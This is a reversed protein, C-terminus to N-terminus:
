KRRRILKKEELECLLVAVDELAAEKEVDFESELETALEGYSKGDGQLAMWIFSGTSNLEHTVPPNSDAQLIIVRGNLEKWTCNLNAVLYTEKSLM